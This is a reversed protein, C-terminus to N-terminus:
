RKKKKVADIFSNFLRPTPRASHQAKPSRKPEYLVTSHVHKQMALPAGTGLAAPAIFINEPRSMSVGITHWM